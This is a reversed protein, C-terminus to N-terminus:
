KLIVMKRLYSQSDASTKSRVQLQYFYVGTAVQEGLENRGDWYAAKSRNTYFGAAQHGLDLERVVAGKTDYITLTVNADHALEYPIWTEPNFPNPYNPLLVTEQPTLAALLQKLFRIGRQSMADTRNLAEAQDIWGQVDAYSFTTQAITKAQQFDRTVSRVRYFRPPAQGTNGIVSAVQILDDISVVGDGNVDAATQGTQGFQLAVLALDIVTVSGDGNVDAAGAIPLFLAMDWLLITSDYGGTALTRGDPSFSVSNVSSTHGELTDIVEGTSVEWLIVKSEWDGSALTRGDWGGSALTRGDPSFSVSNVEGTHGQLTRIETGTSVEWLRVTGDRSGSVLTRGDPSFSVSNVEGTHGQLTRIETGTSVEWLRVTTDRSGSALTRGDPSFSVSEVAFRDEQLTHIERGDAVDWLIVTGDDSGSALTSGDPSFSVSTVLSTHGELTDIVEGTSVEWLRM